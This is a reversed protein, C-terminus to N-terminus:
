LKLLWTRFLGGPAPFPESIGLLRAASATVPRKDADLVYGADLDISFFGPEQGFAGRVAELPATVTWIVDTDKVVAEGAVARMPRQPDLPRFTVLVFTAAFPKSFSEELPQSFHFRLGERFLALWQDLSLQSSPAWNLGRIFAIDDRLGAGTAGIPGPDGKPGPVGPAGDAGRAGAAGPAGPDGRDGKPGPAGSPGDAGRAGAPGAEGADGRDGKPGPPGSPGEAGRPGTAGPPGAEGREGRPGEPGAAGVAGGLGPEGRAGTEGAPGAPGVPGAAGIPGAPGPAGPAGPAGAPGNLGQPGQPGTEGVPGQAGSEGREGPEGQPGAPGIAGPEGQPGAPGPTGGGDAEIVDGDYRWLGEADTQFEASHRHRAPALFLSQPQEFSVSGDEARTIAAIVLLADDHEISGPQVSVTTQATVLTPQDAVRLGSEDGNTLELVLSFTGGEDPLSIPLEVDVALRLAAPSFALGPSLRLAGDQSELRLGYAIAGAGLTRRLEQVSQELTAALHNLHRPTVRLGDIFKTKADEIM